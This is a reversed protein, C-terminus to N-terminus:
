INERSQLESTHEESRGGADVLAFAGAWTTQPRPVLPFPRPTLGLGTFGEAEFRLFPTSQVGVFLSPMGRVKPDLHLRPLLNLRNRGPIHRSTVLRIRSPRNTIEPR